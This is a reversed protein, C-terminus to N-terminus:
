IVYLTTGGLEHTERRPRKVQESLLASLKSAIDATVVAIALGFQPILFDEICDYADRIDGNQDCLLCDCTELEVCFHAAVRRAYPVVQKTPPSLVAVKKGGVFQELQKLSNKLVLQQEVSLAIRAVLVVITTPTM